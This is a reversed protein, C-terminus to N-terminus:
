FWYRDGSSRCRLGIQMELGRERESRLRRQEARSLASDAREDLGKMKEDLALCLASSVPRLGRGSSGLTSPAAPPLAEALRLGGDPAPDSPEALPVSQLTVDDDAPQLWRSVLALVAMAVLLGLLRSSEPRHPPAILSGPRDSM